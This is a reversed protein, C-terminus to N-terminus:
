ANFIRRIILHIRKHVVRVDGGVYKGIHDRAAGLSAPASVAMASSIHINVCRVLLHRLREDAVVYTDEKLRVREAMDDHTRFSRTSINDEYSFM